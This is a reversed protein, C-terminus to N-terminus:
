FAGRARGRAGRVAAARRAAGRGCNRCSSATPHPTSATEVGEFLPPLARESSSFARCAGPLGPALRGPRREWADYPGVMCAQLTRITKPGEPPLTM